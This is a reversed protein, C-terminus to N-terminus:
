NGGPKRCVLAKFEHPVLGMLRDEIRDWRLEGITTLDIQPGLQEALLERTYGLKPLTAGLDAALAQLARFHSRTTALGELTRELGIIDMVFEIKADLGKTIAAQQLHGFHTSLEPHDLHSSLKPWMAREGFETVVAVGEPALWRAVRIMLELAGTLLYFPETADDLVIGLETVLEGPRGLAAVMAPDVEGGSDTLGVDARHLQVAPLDGVMENSLILDFSDAAHDATLVDGVIVTVPLGATRSRQAEALRPSIEQITYSVEIGRGQLASCVARAVYGLGGGIELVRIARAPLRDALGDVLAHGYTRGALAPHPERLLHSLTTEQHDFQQEADALGHYYVNTAVDTIPTDLPQGPTWAPYPMTSILYSPTTSPRKAYMSMPFASLKLAQVSSHTLRHVLAAIRKPDHTARLENLRVEGDCADWIATEIPDLEVRQIPRDGWATYITLHDGQRRWVNWKGRVAIMPWIGGVEDDDPEVLCAQQYFVDVFQGAQGDFRDAHAAVVDAATRVEAFQDLFEVLDPSMQLLYGYLDHYLYVAGQHAFTSLHQSRRLVDPSAAM